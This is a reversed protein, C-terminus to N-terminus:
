APPMQALEDLDDSTDTDAAIQNRRRTGCRQCEHVIALGKGRNATLGIPAMPSPLRERPRRPDDQRPTEVVPLAPLPEPLEREHLTASIRRM